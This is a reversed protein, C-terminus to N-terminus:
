ARRGTPGMTSVITISNMVFTDRKKPPFIVLTEDNVYTDSVRKRTILHTKQKKREAATELKKPM